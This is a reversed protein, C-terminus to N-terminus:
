GNEMLWKGMLKEGMERNVKEWKGNVMEGKGNVIEGNVM